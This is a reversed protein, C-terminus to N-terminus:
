QGVRQRWVDFSVTPIDCAAAARILERRSNQNGGKAALNCISQLYEDHLQAMAAVEEETPEPADDNTSGPAPASPTPTAALGVKVAEELTAGARFARAAAVSATPDCNIVPTVINSLNIEVM